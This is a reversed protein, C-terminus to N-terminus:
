VNIILIVLYQVCCNIIAYTNPWSNFNLNYSWSRNKLNNEFDHRTIDVRMDSSEYIICLYTNHM